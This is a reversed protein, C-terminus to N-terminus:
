PSTEANAPVTTDLQLLLEEARLKSRDLEHSTTTCDPCNAIEIVRSLESRAEAPRSLQIL